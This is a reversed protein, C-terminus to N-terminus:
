VSYIPFNLLNCEFDNLNSLIDYENSIYYNLNIQFIFLSGIAAVLNIKFCKFIQDYILDLKVEWPPNTFDGFIKVEDNISNLIPCYLTIHLIKNKFHKKYQFKRCSNIIRMLGYNMQFVLKDLYSHKIESFKQLAHAIIKVANQKRESSNEEELNFGNRTPSFNSTSAYSYNYLSNTIPKFISSEM